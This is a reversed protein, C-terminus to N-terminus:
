ALLATSHGGQQADDQRPEGIEAVADTLLEEHMALEIRNRGARKAKLLAEDAQAVVQQFTRGRRTDSLGCSVTFAPVAGAALAAQLSERLRQIVPVATEAAVGPLAVVFEEGGWRAAIDNPRLAHRLVDAFFRLARDGTDHGHTDNLAKFGDIDIFALAYEGRAIEPIRAELSRRNALGTLTDTNAQKHKAAFARIMGLEDGTASAVARLARWQAGIPLRKEPGVVHLVGTTRGMISIPLCVASCREGGRNRLYPCTEFGTSNQFVMTAHRRIAPCEQPDTVGCGQHQPDAATSVMRALHAVSSDAVLLEGHQDPQLTEALADRVVGLAGTESQVLEFARHLRHEFERQQAELEREAKEALIQEHQRRIALVGGWTVASGLLLAVALSALLMQRAMETQSILRTNAVKMAEYLDQATIRHLAARLNAYQVMMEGYQAPDLLREEQDLLTDVLKIWNSLLALYDNQLADPLEPVLAQFEAFRKQAREIHERYRAVYALRGASTPLALYNGLMVQAEHLDYETGLLRELAPQYQNAITRASRATTLVNLYAIGVVAVILLILGCGVIGAKYYAPFQRRAHARDGLAEQTGTTPSPVTYEGTMM